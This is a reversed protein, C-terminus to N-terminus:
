IGPLLATDRQTDTTCIHTTPAVGCHKCALLDALCVPCRVEVLCLKSHGCRPHILWDLLQSSTSSNFLYATERCTICQAELLQQNAELLTLGKLEVGKSKTRM